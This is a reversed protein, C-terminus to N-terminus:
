IPRKRLRNFFGQFPRDKKTAERGNGAHFGEGFEEIKPKEVLRNTTELKSINPKLACFIYSRQTSLHSLVSAPIKKKL